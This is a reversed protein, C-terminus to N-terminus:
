SPSGAEQPDLLANSTNWSALLRLADASASGPEATYTAMSLGPETVFNMAEYMLDLEGVESHYIRKRGSGHSRVDHAAWRLRFEDSRTALEGILDTLAKDFPNRGAAGRLVAVFDDATHDWDMFFEPGRPDLFAFRASNATSSRPDFMADHLARGLTNTALIDLRDNQVWAPTQMTDLLRQVSNRVSRPAPRRRTATARSAHALAFLHAREADDLQLARAIGDLVSDSAGGIDGRELQVYYDISVDALMAVEDRRLGPVRRRRNGTALGAVAPQLRARRSVLFDHVETKTSM